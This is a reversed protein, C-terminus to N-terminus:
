YCFLDLCCCEEFLNCKAVVIVQRGDQIMIDNYIFIYIYIYLM